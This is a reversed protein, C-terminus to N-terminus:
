RCGGCTTVTSEPFVGAAVESTIAAVYTVAAVTSAAGRPAFERSSELRRM